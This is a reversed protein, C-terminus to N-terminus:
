HIGPPRHGGFGGFLMVAVAVLIVVAAILGGLRVWGPMGGGEESNDPYADRNIVTDGM